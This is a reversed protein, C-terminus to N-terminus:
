DGVFRALLSGDAGVEYWVTVPTGQIRHEKLHGVSVGVWGESGFEWGRGDADTIRLLGFYRPNDPKRRWGTLTGPLGPCSPICLTGRRRAGLRRVSQRQRQRGGCALMALLLGALLGAAVRFTHRHAPRNM